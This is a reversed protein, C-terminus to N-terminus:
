LRCGARQPTEDNELGPLMEGLTERETVAAEIGDLWSKLSSHPRAYDSPRKGYLDKKAPSLGQEILWQMIEQAKAESSSCILAVHLLNMGRADQVHLNAGAAFLRKLIGLQDRQAAYEAATCGSDDKENILCALDSLMGFQGLNEKKLFFEVIDDLRRVAAKHFINEHRSSRQKPNAGYRLLMDCLAISLTELHQGELAAFLVPEGAKNRHHVSQPERKLHEELEILSGNTIIKFVQLTKATTKM